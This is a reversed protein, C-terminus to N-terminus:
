VFHSKILTTSCNSHISVGGVQTCMEPEYDRRLASVVIGSRNTFHTHRSWSSFDMDDLQGKLEDLQKKIELLGPVQPPEEATQVFWNSLDPLKWQGYEDTFKFKKNYLIDM